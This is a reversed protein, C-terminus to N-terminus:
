RFRCCRQKVEAGRCGKLVEIEAGSCRHVQVVDAGLVSRCRCRHVQVMVKM